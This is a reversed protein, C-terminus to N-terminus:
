RKKNADWCFFCISNNLLGAERVLNLKRKLAELMMSGFSSGQMIEDNNLKVRTDKRSDQTFEMKEQM